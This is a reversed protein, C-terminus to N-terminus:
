GHLGFRLSWPYSYTLPARLAPSPILGDQLAVTGETVDSMPKYDLGQTEPLLLTNFSLSLPILLLGPQPVRLHSAWCCWNFIIKWHSHTSNGRVSPSGQAQHALDESTQCLRRLAQFIGQPDNEGSWEWGMSSALLSIDLSCCHGEWPQM